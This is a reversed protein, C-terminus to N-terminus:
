RREFDEQEGWSLVSDKWFVGFNDNLFIEVQDFTGPSENDINRNNVINHIISKLETTNGTSQYYYMLDIKAELYGKESAIKCYKLSKENDIPIAQCGVLRIRPIGASFCISLEHLAFDCGLSDAKLLYKEGLSPKGKCFFYIGLDFCAMESGKIAAQQLLSLAFATDKIIINRNFLIDHGKYAYADINENAIALNIYKDISDQLRIFGYEYSSDNYHMAKEYYQRGLISDKKENFSFVDLQKCISNFSLFLLTALVLSVTTLLRKTKNM